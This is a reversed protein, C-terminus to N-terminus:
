VSARDRRSHRSLYWWIVGVLLLAAAIIPTAIIGLVAVFLVGAALGAIPLTRPLAFTAALMAGVAVPATLMYALIQYAAQPALFAAPVATLAPLGALIAPFPGARVMFVAASAILGAAVPPMAARSEAARRLQDQDGFLVFQDAM